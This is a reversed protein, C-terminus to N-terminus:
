RRARFGNILEEQDGWSLPINARVLDELRLRSPQRGDLIMQQIGPSLFALRMLRVSYRSMPMGEPLPAGTRDSSVLRHAARLGAILIPDRKTVETVVSEVRARGGRPKLVAPITWRVHGSKRDPEDVWEGTQVTAKVKSAARDTLHLAISDPALEARVLLESRQDDTLELRALASTLAADVRATAFRHTDQSARGGLQLHSPVYYCYTRGRAGRSHTRVLKNGAADFLKGSYPYETQAKRQRVKRDGALSAQVADFLKRDVIATHQGPYCQDKHVIEGVYIRNRLLHYLAGRTFPQNGIWDGKRTVRAKSRIGDRELEELLRYASRLQIYRKFIHRVTEAEAENVQLVRTNSAPLDYGLPPLGGMWMGKAKSAAIKDRIREGTVEREFQAFSLLVNLTLRGMSSTTNFAQTVSVFSVDRADFREVIRAFDPLSRTLRDIKYVVVIDVLGRGIDELLQRLAPREMTGGSYGGDDYRAPLATWGEGAQSLVYAECAERQADLSNFHQDLGEESSKRTYIACRKM